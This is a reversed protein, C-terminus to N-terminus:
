KKLPVTSLTAALIPQFVAPHWSERALGGSSSTASRFRCDWTPEAPAGTNKRTKEETKFLM